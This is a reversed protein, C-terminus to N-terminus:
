DFEIPLFVKEPIKDHPCPNNVQRFSNAHNDPTMIWKIEEDYLKWKWLILKRKYDVVKIEFQDKSTIENTFDKRSYQITFTTDNVRNFNEVPHKEFELPWIITISDSKIKIRPTGGSCPDYVLYGISDREVQTWEKPFKNLSTWGDFFHQSYAHKSLVLLAFVLIKIKM